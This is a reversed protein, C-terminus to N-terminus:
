FKSFTEGKGHSIELQIVDVSEDANLIDTDVTQLNATRQTLDGRLYRNNRRRQRHREVIHLTSGIYIMVDLLKLYSEEHCKSEDQISSSDNRYICGYVGSIIMNCDPDQEKLSRAENFLEQIEIGRKLAEDM